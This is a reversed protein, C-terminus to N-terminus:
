PLQIRIIFGKFAMVLTVSSKCLGTFPKTEADPVILMGVMEQLVLLLRQTHATATINDEILNEYKSLIYLNTFLWM